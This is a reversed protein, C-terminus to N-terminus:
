NISKLKEIFADSIKPIIKKVKKLNNTYNTLDTKFSEYIDDKENNINDKDEEDIAVKSIKAKKKRKKKRKKKNDSGNIYNVLDEINSYHEVKNEINNCNKKNKNSNNIVKKNKNEKHEQNNSIKKPNNSKNIIDGIIFIDKKEESNKVKKEEENEENIGEEDANISDKNIINSIENEEHETINNFSDSAEKTSTDTQEEQIKTEDEYYVEVDSDEEIEKNQIKEFYSKCEEIYKEFRDKEEYREMETIQGFEEDNINTKEDSLLNSIFKIILVSSIDFNKTKQFPKEFIKIIDRGTLQLSNKVELINKISEIKSIVLKKIYKILEEIKQELIVLIFKSFNNNLKTCFFEINCKSELKKNRLNLQKERSMEYYHYEFLEILLNGIIDKHIKPLKKNKILNFQQTEGINQEKEAYINELDEEEEELGDYEKLLLPSNILGEIKEKEKAIESSDIKPSDKNNNKKSM